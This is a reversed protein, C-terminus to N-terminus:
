SLMGMDEPVSRRVACDLSVLSVGPLVMHYHTVGGVPIDGPFGVPFLSPVAVASFFSFRVIERKNNNFTLICDAPMWKQCGRGRTTIHKRIMTEIVGFM